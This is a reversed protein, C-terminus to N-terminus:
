LKLSSNILKGRERPSGIAGSLELDKLREIRTRTGLFAGSTEAGPFKDEMEDDDESETGRKDLIDELKASELLSLTNRGDKEFGRHRRIIHAKFLRRTQIKM